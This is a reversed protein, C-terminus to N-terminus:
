DLKTDNDRSDRVFAIFDDASDDTPWDPFVLTHIDTVVPVHQERAIEDITRHTWFQASAQELPSFVQALSEVLGQLVEFQQQKPLALADALIHQVDREDRTETPM